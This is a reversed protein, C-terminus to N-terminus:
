KRRRKEKERARERERKNNETRDDDDDDNNKRRASPLTPHKQKAHVFANSVIRKSISSFVKLFM